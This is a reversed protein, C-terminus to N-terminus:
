VLERFVTDSVFLAADALRIGEPTRELLGARALREIEPGRLDEYDFGTVRRFDDRRWGARRRLGFILTERAKAEPDLREAFEREIAGAFERPPASDRRATKWAKSAAAAWEELGQFNGWRAGRWHSHASPGFGLYEGGSWYLLNHRSERGPRAFNSIEYHIYGAARLAARAREYQARAADDSAEALRGADRERAFPTGDEIALAYLSLHEPSLAMARELDREWEALSEGPLAYMLDLSLNDFGAARAIAVAEGIEAATHIRGLRALRADDFSQAGISLRNVGAGRLARAKTETLTGPNAECTWEVIREPEVAARLLELLRGLAAESLATPTGGGIYVTESRFEAPRMEFERALAELYREVGGEAIPQSAFDCYACKRLCFPVHLYLGPAASPGKMRTPDSM